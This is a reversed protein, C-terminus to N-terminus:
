RASEVPALNLVVGTDPGDIHAVHTMGPVAFTEVEGPVMLMGDASSVTVGAVGFKIYCRASVCVRIMRVLGDAQTPLTTNATTAGTTVSKGNQTIHILKM